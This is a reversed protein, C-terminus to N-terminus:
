MDNKDTRKEENIHKEWEITDREDIPSYLEDLNYTKPHIVSEVAEKSIILSSADSILYALGNVKHDLKAVSRKVLEIDNHLHRLMRELKLIELSM